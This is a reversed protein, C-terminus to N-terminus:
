DSGPEIRPMDLGSFDDDFSVMAECSKIQAATYHILDIFKLKKTRESRKLAEFIVNIDTSVISLNSKLLSRISKAAIDRSTEFEIINFAEVLNLTDVVGGMLIEKQCGEQNPNKYFAYAIINSDLFKM